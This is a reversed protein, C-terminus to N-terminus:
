ARLVPWSLPGIELRPVVPWLDLRACFAVDAELGLSLLHAGHETAALAEQLHGRVALFALHALRAGDDLVLSPDLALANIGGDHGRLVRLAAAEGPRWAILSTDFSGSLLLAGDATAALARVPGGHGRLEQGASPGSLGLLLALAFPLRRM